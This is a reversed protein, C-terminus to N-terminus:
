LAQSDATALWPIYKKMGPLLNQMSIYSLHEGRRNYIKLQRALMYNYIFRCSGITQNIQQAQEPTPYLRGKCGMHKPSKGAPFNHPM